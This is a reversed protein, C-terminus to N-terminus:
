KKGAERCIPCQPDTCDYKRGHEIRHYLAYQAYSQRMIGLTEDLDSHMDRLGDLDDENFAYVAAHDRTIVMAGNRAPLIVIADRVVSKTNQSLVDDLTEKRTASMADEKLPGKSESTARM